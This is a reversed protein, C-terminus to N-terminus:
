LIQILDNNNNAENKITRILDNMSWKSALELIIILVEQNNSVVTVELKKDQPREFKTISELELEHLVQDPMKSMSMDTALRSGHSQQYDKDSFHVGGPIYIRIAGDGVAVKTKTNDASDLVPVSAGNVELSTLIWNKHKTGSAMTHM